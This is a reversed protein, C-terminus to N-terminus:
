PPAIICLTAIEWGAKEEEEHLGGLRVGKKGQCEVDNGLWPPPGRRGPPREATTPVAAGPPHEQRTV